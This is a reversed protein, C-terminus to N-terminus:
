VLLASVEDDDAEVATNNAEVATSNNAEVTSSNNAEVAVNDHVLEPRLIDVFSELDLRDWLPSDEEIGSVSTMYEKVLRQSMEYLDTLVNRDFRDFDPFDDNRGERGREINDITTVVGILMRKVLNPQNMTTMTM